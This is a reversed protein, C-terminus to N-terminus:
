DWPDKMTSLVVPRALNVTDPQSIIYIAFRAVTEAELVNERVKPHLSLGMDTATLGPCLAAAHINYQQYEKLIFQALDNMGHKTLGYIVQNPFYYIGSDSSIMLIFGGGRQKMKPLVISTLLFPARLNVAFTRDWDEATYNEIVEGHCLIGANNVLIDVPGYTHEVTKVLSDCEEPISIDTKRHHIEHRNDLNKIRNVTQLLKEERRGAIMVRAGSSCLGEAIAAGIGSGGGTVLATKGKIEV